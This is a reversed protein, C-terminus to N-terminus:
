ACAALIDTGDFVFLQSAAVVDADQSSRVRVGADNNGM